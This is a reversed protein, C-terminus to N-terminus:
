EGKYNKFILISTAFLLLVFILGIIMARHFSQIMSTISQNYAVMISLGISGGIQHAMNVLGSAAGSNEPNTNYIGLSTLPSMCLGQGLGLLLLAVMINLAYTGKETLFLIWIFGVFLLVIGIMLVNKNGYQNALRPVFVAAIFLSITMPFFAFGTLIPSYNFVKQLCESLYFWFGFMACMYFTRAIYAGMRIKNKFLDLPMIPVDTKSQWIVFFFLLLISLIFWFLFNKAGNISYVFAFIGIVSLVTGILDFREYKVEKNDLTRYSLILMFLTLPVNIYFGDRWSTFSAFLGGLVLGMSSGLGSISSYWAVAKVREKGDFTDMLLALSTPALIAAGIGQLFRSFIMSTASMSAGAIASGICFMLLAINLIRKRGYIDSLRGGLLIFGGFALIYANQVWALASQNLSLDVSMKELGTIVISGDIATVFYSLLVIILIIRKKRSM